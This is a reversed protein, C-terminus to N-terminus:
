SGRRSPPSTAETLQRFSINLVRLLGLTQHRNGPWQNQREAQVYESSDMGISQALRQVSIQRALRYEALTRPEEIGMLETARCWLVDALVFLETETPRYAGSEWAIIWETSVPSRLVAMQQAVQQHSMGLQQRASLASDASFPPRNM